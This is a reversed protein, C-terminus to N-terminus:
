FPRHFPGYGSLKVCNDQHKTFEGIKRRFVIPDSKLVKQYEGLLDGKYTRTSDIYEGFGKQRSTTISEPRSVKTHTIFNYDRNQHNVTSIKNHKPDWGVKSESNSTFKKNVSGLQADFSKLPWFSSQKSEKFMPLIRESSIKQIAPNQTGSNDWYKGVKWSKYSSAQSEARPSLTLQPKGPRSSKGSSKM